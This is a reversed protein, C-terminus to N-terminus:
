AIGAPPSDTCVGSRSSTKKARVPWERVRFPCVVILETERATRSEAVISRRSTRCESCAGARVILPMDTGIM